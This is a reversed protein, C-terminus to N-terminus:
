CFKRFIIEFMQVRTDVTVNQISDVTNLEQEFHERLEGLLTLIIKKLTTRFLFVARDHLIQFKARSSATTKSTSGSRPLLALM